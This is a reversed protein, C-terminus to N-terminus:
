EAGLRVIARMAEEPAFDIIDGRWGGQGVDAAERLAQDAVAHQIIAPKTM